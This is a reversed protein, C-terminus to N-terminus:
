SRKEQKLRTTTKLDYKELSRQLSRHKIAETIIKSHWDFSIDPSTLFSEHISHREIVDFIHSIQKDNLKQYFRHAWYDITLEHSLIKHWRKQYYSLRGASLDDAKFAEDLVAVAERSSLLGFYIGGGTTPKAQGAADGIVVFRDGYTRNLPKLPINGYNIRYDGKVIKGESALRDLLSSMYARPNTRCLLGAKAQSQGAPVLWAFFGPAIDTGCYIETEDINRFTVEAQAGQAYHSIHGLGLQDSLSSSFGSALVAARAELDFQQQNCRCNIGIYGNYQHIAEVLTNFRYEVNNGQARGAMQKDLAPRDLVYAQTSERDVRIFTGSPSFIKASHTEHQIIGPQVNLMALCESSVIGTCSSKSGTGSNKDLVCVRYGLQGLESATFSGTIGAGIVIVDYM